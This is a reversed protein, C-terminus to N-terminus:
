PSVQLMMADVFTPLLKKPPLKAHHMAVPVGHNDLFTL